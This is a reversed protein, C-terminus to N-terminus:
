VHLLCQFAAKTCVDKSHRRLCIRDANYERVQKVDAKVTPFKAPVLPTTIVDFGQLEGIGVIRYNTTLIIFPMDTCTIAM